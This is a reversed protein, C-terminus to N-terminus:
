ETWEYPFRGGGGVGSTQFGVRLGWLQHPVSGPKLGHCALPQPWIAQGGKRLAQRPCPGRAEEQWAHAIARIHAPDQM